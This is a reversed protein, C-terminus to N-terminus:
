VRLVARECHYCLFSGPSRREMELERYVELVEAEVRIGYVM